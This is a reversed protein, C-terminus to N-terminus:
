CVELHYTGEQDGFKWRVDPIFDKFTDSGLNVWKDRSLFSYLM